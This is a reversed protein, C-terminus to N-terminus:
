AGTAKLHAIEARATDREVIVADLVRLCELVHLGRERLFIGCAQDHSECQQLWAQRDETIRATPAKSMLWALVDADSPDETNM